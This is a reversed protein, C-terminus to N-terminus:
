QDINRNKHLYRVTKIVTAKNSNNTTDSNQSGMSQLERDRMIEQLKSLNMDMLNTTGGLWRM